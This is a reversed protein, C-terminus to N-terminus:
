GGRRALAQRRREGRASGASSRRQEDPAIGTNQVHAALTRVTPFRFLDTLSLPADIQEVLAKFVRVALLSHGGVDFFNDDRGIRRGLADSWALAITREREDTPEASVTAVDATEDPLANRDIKANPTLPLAPLAVILAPVMVAPLESSAYTRVDSENLQEGDRTVVFAVLQPESADGRAVVVSQTITPHADLIAEIEGLEIRHGRIKLQNDTRGGFEIHGAPDLRVVDGTAYVRGVGARDVFREATLEPRDHYGRAVGDGGIHLEGFVGTPVGHGNADLVHVSTNAVPRGIPVSTRDVQTIEHVLSWITTETPGYMNTFRGGLLQRLERALAVPLAEGGLLLHGITSLAHRDEPDAALMTAKM